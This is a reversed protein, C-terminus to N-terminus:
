NPALFIILGFGLLSILSIISAGIVLISALKIAAETRNLLQKQKNLLISISNILGASITKLNANQTTLTEIVEALKENVDDQSHAVLQASKELEAPASELFVRMQGTLALILFMPDSPDLGSLSVIEYVKAQVEPSESSLCFNLVERAKNNLRSM